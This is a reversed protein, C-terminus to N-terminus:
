ISATNVIRVKSISVIIVISVTKVIAHTYQTISARLSNSSCSFQTLLLEPMKLARWVEWTYGYCSIRVPSAHALEKM